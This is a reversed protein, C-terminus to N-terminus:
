GPKFPKLNALRRARGTESNERQKDTDTKM